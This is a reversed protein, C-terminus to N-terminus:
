ATAGSCGTPTTSPPSTQPRPGSAIASPEDGVVDSLLLALTKAPAALNASAGGKLVSVHKRM